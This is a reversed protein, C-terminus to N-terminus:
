PRIKKRQILGYIDDFKTVYVRAQQDIHSSYYSMYLTSNSKDLVMGPYSTDLSSPLIALESLKKTERNFHWLRTTFQRRDWDIHRGSVLFHGDNLLVAAPGGIYIGLDYWQWQTYPPKSTGFQASFTDADRRLFVYANGQHDFVFASENPYGKGTKELGFVNRKHMLMRRMPNGSFLSISESPRHYGFGYAKGEICAYNWLWHGVVGLKIQSSWSFGNSSLFSLANYSKKDDNHKTKAYCSMILNGNFFTLKPDRLDTNPLSIRETRTVRFTQKDITLIVIKGDWSVHNTAERYCCFLTHGTKDFPNEHLDTFAAHMAPASVRHIDIDSFINSM